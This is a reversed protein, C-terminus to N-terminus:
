CWISLNTNVSQSHWSWQNFTSLFFHQSSRTRAGWLHYMSIWFALAWMGPAKMMLHTMMLNHETVDWFAPWQQLKRWAPLSTSVMVENGNRPSQSVQRRQYTILVHFRAPVQLQFGPLHLTTGLPIRRKEGGPAKEKGENIMLAKSPHHCQLLEPSPKLPCVMWSLWQPVVMVFGRHLCGRGKLENSRPIWHSLSTTCNISRSAYGLSFYVIIIIIYHILSTLFQGCRFGIGM